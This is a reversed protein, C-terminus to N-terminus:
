VAGGEGRGARAARVVVLQVSDHLARRLSAQWGVSVLWEVLSTEGDHPVSLSISAAEPHCLWEGSGRLVAAANTRSSLRLHRPRPLGYRTMATDLRTVCAPQVYAHSGDTPRVRWAKKRVLWREEGPSSQPYKLEMLGDVDALPLPVPIVSGECTNLRLNDCLASYARYAPEFAVVVAGRQKAAILTYTGMGANVDYVVDGPAVHRDLWGVTTEDLPIAGNRARRRAHPTAHVWIRATRLALPLTDAAAPAVEVEDAADATQLSADDLPTPAGSAYREIADALLPAVPRDFGCPRLFAEIFARIPAPDVPQRLAQALQAVHEDLDGAASVFGGHATTLYHFHMTGGQGDADEDSALITFVPRGVIGAELEATTNLGVVAASHTISEFLGEPASHSTTLVLARQDGFPRAVHGGFTVAGPWRHRTFQASPLLDIDPHPRVIVNCDRLEPVASARVGALWREIFPLERESILRSSCVYLLTQKSPDLGLPVHFTERSMQPTLAFFNDFRPAGMPIVREPPFGHLEHAERRQRENWAFIVDPRRHLCGKTSLNDWSFLLMHVPIGARRASAVLDAQASGFHVLPSVLLVDPRQMALFEDILSATPLSQEALRCITELRGVVPASLSQLAEVFAPGSVRGPALEQHLKELMRTRLKVAPAMVPRLYQVADRTRRLLSAVPAWEDARAAPAVVVRFRESGVQQELRRDRADDREQVALTVAHGRQALHRLVDVYAGANKEQKVVFLLHM